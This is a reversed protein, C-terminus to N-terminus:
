LVAFGAMNSTNPGAPAGRLPQGGLNCAGRLPQDDLNCAGERCHPHPNNHTVATQAAAYDTQYIKDDFAKKSEYVTIDKTDQPTGTGFCFLWFYIHDFRQTIRPTRKEKENSSGRRGRQQERIWSEVFNIATGPLCSWCMHWIGNREVAVQICHTTRCPSPPVRSGDSWM